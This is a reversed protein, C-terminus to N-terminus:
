QLVLTLKAIYIHKLIFTMQMNWHLNIKKKWNRGSLIITYEVELINNKM